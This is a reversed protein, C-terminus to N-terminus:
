LKHKEYRQNWLSCCHSICIVEKQRDYQSVLNLYNKFVPPKNTLFLWGIIDLQWLDCIDVNEGRNIRIWQIEEQRLLTGRYTHEKEFTILLLKDKHM